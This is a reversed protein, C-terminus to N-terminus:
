FRDKIPVIEIIDDLSAQPHTQFVDLGSVVIDGNRLTIDFVKNSTIGTVYEWKISITGPGDMKYSLKGLKMSMIQGTLTDKNRLIVKDTKQGRAVFSCGTLIFIFLLHFSINKLFPTFPNNHIIM